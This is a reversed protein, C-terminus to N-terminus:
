LLSMKMIPNRHNSKFPKNGNRFDHEKNLEPTPEHPVNFTRVNVFGTKRDQEFQLDRITHFGDNIKKVYKMYETKNVTRTEKDNQHMIHSDFFNYFNSRDIKLNSSQVRIQFANDEYGWAWLNPFGMTKEFDGAKISVIGGLTFNFGYFHKVNGEITDYNLLNKIYPMTDVDNFVLTIHRYDNPYLQKIFLFGINKMAGRNFNRDDCQHIYFITYESDRYDSMIMKMHEKFVLLNEKRDRYPVIFIIKPIDHDRIVLQINKKEM